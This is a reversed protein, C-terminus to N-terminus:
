KLEKYEKPTYGTFKKFNYSFYKYDNYGVKEAIEYTKAGAIGLLAKAKEIRFRNLWEVFHEGTEQKFVKSLYNPTVYVKGATKCLSIDESYHEIVYDIVNKVINKYNNKRIEQLASIFKRFLDRIWAEISGITEYKRIEVDPQFEIGIASEMNIGFEQLVNEALVILRLCANKVQAYSARGEALNRFLKAAAEDLKSADMARLASLFKKEDESFCQVIPASRDDETSDAHVICGKGLYLKRRLAAQAGRYSATLGGFGYSAFGIGISVSLQLHKDICTQIERCAGEIEKGNDHELNIIGIFDDFEGFYVNGQFSSSLIEHSVNQVSLKLLNKKKEPYYETILLYDDIDIMLIQYVPGSLDVDLISAREIIEDKNSIESRLLSSVFKGQMHPISEHFYQMASLESNRKAAEFLIRDKLELVLKVLDEAGVPKLLYDSVGLGIAKKAYDFDSYGSLIVIKAESGLERLSQVFDLGDMVPMRIDTLIIDPMVARVKELAERGNKAEGAIEVGYEEWNISSIIGARIIPEDDVILIKVM